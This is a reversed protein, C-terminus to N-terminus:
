GFILVAAGLFACYVAFWILKGKKVLSLMWSCAIFGSVFAAAFGTLLSIASIGSATASFEGKTLDLLCEGLIPALVM